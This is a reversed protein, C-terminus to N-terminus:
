ALLQLEQGPHIVTGGLDNFAILDAVSIDNAFAIDYLTDGAQVIVTLPAVTEVPASDEGPVELVQGPRIGDGTLANMSKITGVDSNAAKAISWLTDGPQVTITKAAAFPAVLAALLLLPVLRRIAPM